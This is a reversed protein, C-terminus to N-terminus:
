SRGRSRPRGRADDRLGDSEGRELDGPHQADPAASRRPAVQEGAEGIRARSRSPLTWTVTQSTARGRCGSMGSAASTRAATPAAM